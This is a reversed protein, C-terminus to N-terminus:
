ASRALQAWPHDPFAGLFKTRGHRRACSLCPYDDMADVKGIQVLAASEAAFSEYRDELRAIVTAFSETTLDGVIPEDGTGYRSLQCCFPVRGKADVFVQRLSMTACRERPEPQYAGYDLRLPVASRQSLAFVELAVTKWEAPSLDTGVLASDPTPQPLIYHFAAVGFQNALAAAAELEHRSERTVVMSMETRIGHALLVSAGLLARRYSRQGREHDHTEPSAGSLSVRVFAPRHTLLTDIHKPVLWGNSVMHWPLGRGRLMGLADPFSAAALPEGGTFVVRLPAFMASAEGVIRELLAVDLHDLQAQHPGRICHNCHLNCVNSLEVGLDLARTARAIM